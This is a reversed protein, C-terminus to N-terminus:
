RTMSRFITRKGRSDFIVDLVEFIKARGLLPYTIPDTSFLIPVNNIVCDGIKIKFLRTYAKSQKTNASNYYEETCDGKTYGM